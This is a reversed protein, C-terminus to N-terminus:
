CGGFRGELYIKKTNKDAVLIKPSKADPQFTHYEEGAGGYFAVNPQVTITEDAVEYDFEAVIPGGWEVVKQEGAALQLPLMKGTRMQVTEDGKAAFGYAFRYKGAPVLTSGAESAVNFHHDGDDSSIVASLLKGRCDHGSSMDVRASPGTYPRYSVQSGDSSVEIEFLSDGANIVRSLLSAGAANGVVIADQGFDDYRGNGSRDILEIPTGNLKGEMVGGVAYKYKGAADNVFRVAYAFPKGDADKSRLELFGDAGRVDKDVVGDGDTDVRLKMPGIQEVAFGEGGAHPIAITDVLSTWVENPVIIDWNKLARFSLAVVQHTADDAAPSEDGAFAFTAGAVGLVLPLGLYPGLPHQLPGHRTTM